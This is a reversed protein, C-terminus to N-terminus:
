DLFDFVRDNLLESIMVIDKDCVMIMNFLEDAFEEESKNSMYEYNIVKAISNVDVERKSCVEKIEKICENIKKNNQEGLYSFRNVKNETKEAVTQAEIKPPDKLVFLVILTYVIGV